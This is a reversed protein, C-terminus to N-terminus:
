MEMALKVGNQFLRLGLNDLERGRLHHPHQRAVIFNEPHPMLGLVNGAPNSLGAVDGMSGNPNDAYRLVVCGQDELARLQEEEVQFRGEGHAIPLSIREGAGYGGLWLKVQELQGSLMSAYAPVRETFTAVAAALPFGLAAGAAVDLLLGSLAAVLKPVGRDCLWIVLPATVVAIFGAVLVPVLVPAALKIGAGIVIISAGILVVRGDKALAM